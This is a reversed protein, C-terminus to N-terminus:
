QAEKRGAFFCCIIALVVSIGVFMLGNGMGTIFVTSCFCIGTKVIVGFTNKEEKWKLILYLLYPIMVFMCITDGSYGNFLLKYGATMAHYGGSLLMIGYFLSFLYFNKKNKGFFVSALGMMAAYSAALTLVSMVGHVLLKTDIGTIKAFFAYFLPVTVLKKSTIMGLDMAKKHIPHYQFMTDTSLTVNVTELVVDSRTYSLSVGVQLLVLLYVLLMSILYIKDEKGRKHWFDAEKETKGKIKKILKWILCVAGILAVAFVLIKCRGYAVTFTVNQLVSLFFVVGQLFFLLFFGILYTEIQNTEKQRLITNLVSGAVLPLLFIFLVGIIGM